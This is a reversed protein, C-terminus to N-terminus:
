RGDLLAGDGRIKSEQEQNARAVREIEANLAWCWADRELRSRTRCVLLKRQSSLAPIPKTPSPTPTGEDGKGQVQPQPHYWVMFLMDEDLDDAELGDQYRRPATSSNADFQGSPLALAALYGSVVYADSLSTKKHVPRHLASSSKIRFQIIHGSVLFMQVPKYQGRLGRRM